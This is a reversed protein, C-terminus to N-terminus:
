HTIIDMNKQYQNGLSLIWENGRYLISIPNGGFTNFMLSLDAKSVGIGSIYSMSSPHTHFHSKVNYWEGEYKVQIVGSKYRSKIQNNYSKTRTNNKPDLVIYDGNELALNSVERELVYGDGMDLLVSQEMAYDYAAKKSTFYENVYEQVTHMVHNLGASILGNRFGEWFNGGSIVSTVGGSIGGSAVVGGAYIYIPTISMVSCSEREM